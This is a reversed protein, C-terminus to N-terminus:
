IFLTNFKFPIGMENRNLFRRNIGIGLRNKIKGVVSRIDEKEGFLWINNFYEGFGNISCM